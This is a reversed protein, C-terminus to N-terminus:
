VRINAFVIPLRHRFRFSNLAEKSYKIITYVFNMKQWRAFRITKRRSSVCLRIYLVDIKV